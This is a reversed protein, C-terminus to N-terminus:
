MIVWKIDGKEFRELQKDLLDNILDRIEKLENPQFLQFDLTAGRGIGHKTGDVRPFVQIKGHMPFLKIVNKESKRIIPTEVEYYKMM